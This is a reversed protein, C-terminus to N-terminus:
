SPSSPFDSFQFSRATQSRFNAESEENPLGHEGNQSPQSDNNLPFENDGDGASQPSSVPNDNKTNENLEEEDEDASEATFRLNSIISQRGSGNSQDPDVASESSFLWVRHSNPLGKGKGNGNSNSNSNKNAEGNEDASRAIPSSPPTVTHPREDDSSPRRQVTGEGQSGEGTKPKQSETAYFAERRARAVYHAARNDLISSCICM